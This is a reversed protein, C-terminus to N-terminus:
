LICILKIYMHFVKGFIFRTYSANCQMAHCIINKRFDKLLKYSNLFFGCTLIGGLDGQAFKWLRPLNLFGIKLEFNRKRRKQGTRGQPGSLRQGLWGGTAERRGCASAWLGAWAARGVRATPTNASTRKRRQNVGETRPAKERDVASAHAGSTLGM